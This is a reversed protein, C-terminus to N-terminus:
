RVRTAEWPIAWRDERGSSPCVSTLPCADCAPTSRRCTQEGHLRLLLHARELVQQDASLQEQARQQASRYSAEYRASGEGIGLRLLVRLGNSELALVSHWGALLVIKEAGPAGIRPFRRLERKAKAAPLSRLSDLDGNFRTGAIQACERLRDIRQEPLIGISVIPMLQEDSADLIADPSSGIQQELMEFARDRKEDDVLYVVNEWVIMAWPDRLRPAPQSGYHAELLDLAQPLPM